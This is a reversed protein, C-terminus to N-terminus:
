CISHTKEKIRTIKVIHLCQFAFVLTCQCGSIKPAWGGWCQTRFYSIQTHATSVSHWYPVRISVTDTYTYVLELSRIIDDSCIQTFFLIMSQWLLLIGSEEWTVMQWNLAFILTSMLLFPLFIMISFHCGASHVPVKSM